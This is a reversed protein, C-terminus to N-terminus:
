RQPEKIGLARLAHWVATSEHASVRTNNVLGQLAEIQEDTMPERDQAAPPHAYVPTWVYRGAHMLDSPRQPGRKYHDGHGSHLVHGMPEAKADMERQKALRLLTEISVCAMDGMRAGAFAEIHHKALLARDADSLSQSTTDPM